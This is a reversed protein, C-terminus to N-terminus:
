VKICSCTGRGVNDEAYGAVCLSKDSTYPSPKSTGTCSCAQANCWAEDVDEGLIYIKYSGPNCGSENDRCNVAVTVKAGGYAGSLWVAPPKLDAATYPDSATWGEDYASLNNGATDKTTVCTFVYDCADECKAGSFDPSLKWPDDTYFTITKKCYMSKQGPADPDNYNGDTYQPQNAPDYLEANNDNGFCSKEVMGWFDPDEYYYMDGSKKILYFGFGVIDPGSDGQDYFEFTLTVTSGVWSPVVPPECWSTPVEDVRIEFVGSYGVNCNIDKAKLMIYTHDDITETKGVADTWSSTCAVPASNLRYSPPPSGPPANRLDYKGWNGWRMICWEYSSGDCSYDPDDCYSVSVDVDYNVWNPDSNTEYDVWTTKAQDITYKLEIKPLEIDCCGSGDCHYDGSCGSEQSCRPDAKCYCGSYDCCKKTCKCGNEDCKWACCYLRATGAPSWCTHCKCGASCSCPGGCSIISGSYCEQGKLASPTPPSPTGNFPPTAAQCVGGFCYNSGTCDGDPDQAYDPVTDCKCNSYNCKWEACGLPTSNSCYSSATGNPFSCVGCGSCDICSCSPKAFYTTSPCTISTVSQILCFFLIIGILFKIWKDM